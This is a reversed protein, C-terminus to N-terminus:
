EETPIRDKTQDVKNRSEEEQRKAQTEYFHIDGRPEREITEGNSMFLKDVLYYYIIIYFNSFFESSIITSLYFFLTM